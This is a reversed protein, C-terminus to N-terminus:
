RSAVLRALVQLFFCASSLHLWVLLGFAPPLLLVPVSLCVFAVCSWLEKAQLRAVTRALLAKQLRRTEHVHARWQIFCPVVLRAKWRAMIARSRQEVLRSREASFQRQLDSSKSDEVLLTWM